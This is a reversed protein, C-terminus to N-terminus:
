ILFKKEANWRGQVLLYPSGINARSHFFRLERSTELVHLLYSRATTTFNFHVPTTIEGNAFFYGYASFAHEGPQQGFGKLKVLYVLIGKPVQRLMHALSVQSPKFYLNSFQVHPFTGREDRFGNGTSRGGKEFGSRIDAIATVFMGKNILYKEGAATGEDDFPVSGPQEDLIPNDLISVKASAAIGRGRAGSQGLKFNQSFEKLVQASAEPSMILMEAGAALSDAEAALAGLLNAGRAV